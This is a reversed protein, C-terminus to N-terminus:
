DVCKWDQGILLWTHLVMWSLSPTTLLILALDSCHHSVRNGHAIPRPHYWLIISQLQGCFIDQGNLYVQHWRNCQRPHGVAVQVCVLPEMVETAIIFDLNTRNVHLSTGQGYAPPDEKAACLFVPCTHCMSKAWMNTVTSGVLLKILTIVDGTHHTDYADLICSLNQLPSGYSLGHM